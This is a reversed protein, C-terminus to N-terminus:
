AKRKEDLMKIVNFVMSEINSRAEQIMEYEEDSLEYEKRLPNSSVFIATMADSKLKTGKESFIFGQKAESYKEVSPVKITISKTNYNKM